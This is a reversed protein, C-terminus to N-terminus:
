RPPSENGEVYGLSKLRQKQEESLEPPQVKPTKQRWGELERLLRDREAPRAGSLDVDELPDEALDHLQTAPPAGDPLLFFRSPHLILKMRSAEVVANTQHGYAFVRERPPERGNWLSHGEEGPRPPLGLSDLITAGIDLNATLGDKVVGAAIGPGALILPTNWLDDYYWPRHGRGFLDLVGEPLGKETELIRQVILPQQRHEYLMEGHDSCLIVITNELEGSRELSQLIRGVGDDVALVEGDYRNSDDRAQEISAELSPIARDPSKGVAETYAEGLRSAIRDEDLRPGRFVDHAADPEYPHHPDIFQVWAFYPRPTTGEAAREARSSHWETFHAALTLADAGNADVYTDYGRSFGSAQGLVGNAVFGATEFGANRVFEGLVAADPPLAKIEDVISRGTMMSVMSPLTWCAQSYNRRYLTGRRALGDINPSTPRPYGYCSLRNSRLTDAVILLVNKPRGATPAGPIESATDRSCAALGAILLVGACVALVLPERRENSSTEV